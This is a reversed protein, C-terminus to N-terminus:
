TSRLIAQIIFKYYIDHHEIIYNMFSLTTQHIDLVNFVTYCCFKLTKDIEIYIYIYIIFLYSALM